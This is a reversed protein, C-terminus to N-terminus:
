GHVKTLKLQLEHADDVSETQTNNLLIKKDAATHETNSFHGYHKILWTYGTYIWAGLIAGVIPGIIPVWFFYNHARFVDNWGYVFAGFIRPGLDRAPNVAAGANISFACTVSMVVVAFAFPKAVESIMHNCDYALAMVFIMLCGTSVVQDIFTNWQPIGKAPMTFFIDATGNPGIMQRVGGDFVNFQNFYVLYVLLAGLFAGSIQGIIYFICRLPKLKGITMLSISVAPNLHAGTIPGSIMMASYVGVGFAIGVPLTSNSTQRAFKYNAIAAEGILILICTSFCEALYQVM